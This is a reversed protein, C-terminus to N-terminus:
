FKREFEEDDIVDSISSNNESQEQISPPCNLHKTIESDKRHFNNQGETLNSKRHPSVNLQQRKYNVNNFAQTKKEEEPDELLLDKSLYSSWSEEDKSEEIVNNIEDADLNNTIPERNSFQLNNPVSINKKIPAELKM